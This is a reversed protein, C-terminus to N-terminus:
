ITASSVVRKFWQKLWLRAAYTLPPKIPFRPASRFVEDLIHVVDMSKGLYGACGACCTVVRRGKAQRKRQETWAQAFDPRVFGVMGGEGCCRTAMGQTPMKELAMGCREALTRVAQQVERDFRQPCADHVVTPPGSLPTVAYESDALVRVAPVAELPSGYDRFIKQCNPCATIVRKVGAQVLRDHLVGFHDEFHSERGLDHSPKMCCGLAIGMKPDDAQLARFLRKVTTPRTAPLTCGPFLVTDGGTPLSFHSFLSSGGVKEYFLIPKYPKLDVNGGRVMAQRMALFLADPELGVPCVARCLGCLSCHFPDPWEEPPLDRVKAVIEAPTGYEKLFSCRVACSGCNTCGSDINDVVNLLTNIQLM